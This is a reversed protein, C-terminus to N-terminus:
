RELAEVRALLDAETTDAPLTYTESHFGCDAAKKGKSRVYVQSAPDEGVIVVAIGPKIGTEAILKATAAKVTEVVDAAVEKGDIVSRQSRRQRDDSM